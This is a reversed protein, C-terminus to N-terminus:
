PEILQPGLCQEHTAAGLQEGGAPGPDGARYARTGVGQTLSQARVLSRPQLVSPRMALAVQPARKAGSVHRDRSAAALSHRPQSGLWATALLGSTLASQAAQAWGIGVVQLREECGLPAQGSAPRGM